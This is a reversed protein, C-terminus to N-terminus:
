GARGQLRYILSAQIAFFQQRSRSGARARGRTRAEAAFREAEEFRGDIMARMGRLLPVHWLHQPQRLEEALRAYADLDRDVARIDGLELHDRLRLVYARLELERDGVRRALELVETNSRWWGSPPTPTSTSSARAASSTFALTREDGLRRAM